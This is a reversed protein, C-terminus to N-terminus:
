SIVLFLMRVLHRSLQKHETLAVVAAVPLTNSLFYVTATVALRLPLEAGLLGASHHFILYCLAVCIAIQAANFLVHLGEFQKKHWWTQVVSGVCGLVLTEAMSLEVVSVLVVVVGASMTGNIGPLAVKFGSALVILLLYVLFRTADPWSSHWLGTALAAMGASIVLAIFAKAQATM